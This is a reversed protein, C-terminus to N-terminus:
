RAYLATYDTSFLGINRLFIDVGDEPDFLLGQKSVIEHKNTAHCIRPGQIHLHCM